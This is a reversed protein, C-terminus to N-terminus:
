NEVPATAIMCSYTTTLPFGEKDIAPADTTGCPGKEKKLILDVHDHSNLVVDYAHLHLPPNNVVPKPHIGTRVEEEPGHIITLELLGKIPHLQPLSTATDTIMNTATWDLLPASVNKILWTVEFTLEQESGGEVSWCSGAATNYFRGKQLRVRGNLLNGPKDGIAQLRARKRVKKPHKDFDFITAPVTPNFSDGAAPFIKVDLEDLPFTSDKGELETSGKTEYAKDYSALAVHKMTGTTRPMLLHLPSTPVILQLGKFTIRLDWTALTQSDDM